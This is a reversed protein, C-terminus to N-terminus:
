VSTRAHEVQRKTLLVFRELKGEHGDDVSKVADVVVKFDVIIVWPIVIITDVVKRAVVVPNWEVM